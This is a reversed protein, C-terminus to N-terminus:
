AQTDVAKFYFLGVSKNIPKLTFSALSRVYGSIPPGLVKSAFERENHTLGFGVVAVGSTVHETQCSENLQFKTSREIEKCFM